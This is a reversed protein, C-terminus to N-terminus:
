IYKRYVDSFQCVNNLFERSKGEDLGSFSRYFFFMGAITMYLYHLVIM